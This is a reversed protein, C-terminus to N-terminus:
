RRSLSGEGWYFPGEAGRVRISWGLETLLRELQSPSYAVKFIEHESGDGLQRRVITPAPASETEAPTRHADDIFFVRGGPGLSLEVLSWFREFREPPVHSLWFCFGVVDYRGDPQWSFIDSEIFRM